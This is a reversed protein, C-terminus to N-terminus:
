TILGCEQFIEKLENIIKEKEKELNEHMINVTRIFIEIERPLEDSCKENSHLHIKLPPKRDEKYNEPRPYLLIIKSCKGGLAYALMQYIDENSVGFKKDPNLLKYKTDIIVEIKREKRNCGNSCIVIDPKLRITETTDLYGLRHQAKIDHDGLGLDKKYKIIFNAIFEEFLENMDFIIAGYDTKGTTLDISFNNIFLFCKEIVPMLYENLRTYHIKEKDEPKIVKDSIDALTFLLQNIRNINLYSHSMVRLLKLTYKITQNILNDDTLEDFECYLKVPNNKVVNEKIHQSIKIKGRFFSLNDEIDIYQRFLTARLAEELERLFIHIYIELFNDRYRKFISESTKRIPLKYAFHLMYLLNKLSQTKKDEGDEGSDRLSPKYLKPLIQIRKNGVNIVGVYNYTRIKSKDYPITIVNEGFERKLKKNIRLLLKIEKDTLEEIEEKSTSFEYLTIQSKRM